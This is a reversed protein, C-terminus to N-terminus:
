CQTQRCLAMVFTGLNPVPMRRSVIIQQTFTPLAV